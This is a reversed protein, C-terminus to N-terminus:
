KSFELGLDSPDANKLRFKFGGKDNMTLTGEMKQGDQDRTLVLDNGQQVYTGSFTTNQGGENFKWTFHKDPQFSAEVTV